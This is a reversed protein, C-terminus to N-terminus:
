GTASAPAAAATSTSACASPPIRDRGSTLERLKTAAADSLRVLPTPTEVTEIPAIPLTQPTQPQTEIM